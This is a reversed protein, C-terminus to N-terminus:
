EGADQSSSSAPHRRGCSCTWGSLDQTSPAHTLKLGLRAHVASLPPHIQRWRSKCFPSDDASRQGTTGFHLRAHQSPGNIWVGNSPDTRLKQTNSHSGTVALQMIHPTRRAARELQPMPSSAPLSPSTGAACLGCLGGPDKANRAPGLPSDLRSPCLAPRPSAPSLPSAQTTQSRRLWGKRGQREDLARREARVAGEAEPRLIWAIGNRVAVSNSRHRCCHATRLLRARYPVM